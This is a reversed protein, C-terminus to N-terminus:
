RRRSAGVVASSLRAMVDASYYRRRDRPQSTDEIRKDMWRLYGFPFDVQGLMLLVQTADRTSETSAAQLIEISAEFTAYLWM